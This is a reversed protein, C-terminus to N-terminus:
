EHYCFINHWRSNCNVDNKKCQCCRTRCKSSSACHCRMMSQGGVAFLLKACQHVSLKPSDKVEKMSLHQEEVVKYESPYFTSDLAGHETWINIGAKEPHPIWGVVGLINLLDAKSCDFQPIQTLINTGVKVKDSKLCKQSREVMMEVQRKTAKKGLLELESM